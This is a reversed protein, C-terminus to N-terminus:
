GGKINLKITNKETETLSGDSGSSSGGCANTAIMLLTLILCYSVISILKSYKKSM